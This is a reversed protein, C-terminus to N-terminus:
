PQYTASNNLFHKIKSKTDNIKNRSLPLKKGSTLLVSNNEVSRIHRFNVLYSKHIRIFGKNKMREEYERLTGCIRYTGDGCVATIIHTMSEFYLIEKVSLITEGNPTKFFLHESQSSFFDNLSKVAECLDHDLDSKRVFRFAGYLFGKYALEHKNCVLLM